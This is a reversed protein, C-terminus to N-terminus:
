PLPSTSGGPPNFINGNPTIDVIGRLNNDADRLELSPRGTRYDRLNFGEGHLPGMNRIPSESPAEINIGLSETKIQGIENGQTDFLLLHTPKDNYLFDFTVMPKEDPYILNHWRAAADLTILVEIWKKDSVKDEKETM